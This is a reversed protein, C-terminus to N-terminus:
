ITCFIFFNVTGTVAVTVSRGKCGAVAVADGGGNRRGCGSKLVKNLVLQKPHYFCVDPEFNPRNLISGEVEFPQKVIDVGGDLHLLAEKAECGVEFYDVLGNSQRVVFFSKPKWMSKSNHPREKSPQLMKQMFRPVSDRAKQGIFCGGFRHELLQEELPGYPMSDEMLLWHGCGWLSGYKYVCGGFDIGSLAMDENEALDCASTSSSLEIGDDDDSNITVPGNDSLLRSLTSDLHRSGTSTVGHNLTRATYSNSGSFSCWPDLYNPRADSVSIVENVADDCADVDLIENNFDKKKTKAEKAFCQLFKYKNVPSSDSHHIKFKQSMTKSAIEVQEEAKSFEFIEFPNSSSRARSRTKM